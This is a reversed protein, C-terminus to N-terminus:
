FYALLISESIMIFRQYIMSEQFYKSEKSARKDYYRLNLFYDQFYGILHQYILRLFKEFM